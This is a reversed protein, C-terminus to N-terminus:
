QIYAELEQMLLQIADLLTHSATPVDYGQEALFKMDVGYLKLSVGFLQGSEDEMHVVDFTSSLVADFPQLISIRGERHLLRVFDTFLTDRDKQGMPALTLQLRKSFLVHTEIACPFVDDEYERFTLVVAYREDDPLVMEAGVACTDPEVGTDPPLWTYAIEEIDGRTSLADVLVPPTKEGIRVTRAEELVPVDHNLFDPLYANIVRWSRSLADLAAHLYEEKTKGAYSTEDYPLDWLDEWVLWLAEEEGELPDIDVLDFEPQDEDPLDPLVRWDVDHGERILQGDVWAHWGLIQDGWGHIAENRLPILRNNQFQGPMRIGIMIAEYPNKSDWKEGLSHDCWIEIWQGDRGDAEWGATWMWAHAREDDPDEPDVFIKPEFGPDGNIDPRSAILQAVWGAKEIPRESRHSTGHELLAM